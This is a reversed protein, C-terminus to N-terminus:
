KPNPVRTQGPTPHKRLWEKLAKLGYVWIQIKVLMKELGTKPPLFASSAAEDVADVGTAPGHQSFHNGIAAIGRGIRQALKDSSIRLVRKKKIYNLAPAICM